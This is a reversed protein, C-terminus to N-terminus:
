RKSGRKPKKSPRKATRREAVLTITRRTVLTKGTPSTTAVTIRCHQKKRGRLVRRRGRRSLRVRVLPKAGAKAVFRAKGVEVLKAAAAARAKGLDSQAVELTVTGKCRGEGAPCAVRVAAVGHSDLRPNQAPIVVPLPNAQPDVPGIPTSTGPAAPDSTAPDAPDPAPPEPTVPPAGVLTGSVAGTLAECDSGIKDAAEALGTDSGTGCWVEDAVGDRVTISDAGTGATVTDAGAGPDITDNGDGGTISDVGPGTRLTDNGYSGSLTVSPSSAAGTNVAADDDGWGLSVSISSVGSCKVQTASVRPCSSYNSVGATDVVSYQGAGLPTITVHNTAFTIDSYSLVGSSSVSATGAASASAPLAFAAIAGLASVAIAIRHRIARPTSHM